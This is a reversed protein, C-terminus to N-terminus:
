FDISNIFKKEILNWGSSIFEQIMMVTIKTHKAHFTQMQSSIAVGFTYTDGAFYRRGRLM